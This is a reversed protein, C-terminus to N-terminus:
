PNVRSRGWVKIQGKALRVLHKRVCELPLSVKGRSLCFVKDRSDKQLMLYTVKAQHMQGRGEVWPMSSLLLPEGLGAWLFVALPEHLLHSLRHALSPQMSISFSPYRQQVTHDLAIGHMRPVYCKRAGTCSM